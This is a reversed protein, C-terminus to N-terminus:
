NRESKSVAYNSIEVTFEQQRYSNVRKIITDHRDVWYTAAKNVYRYRRTPIQRDGLYLAEEGVYEVPSFVERLVGPFLQAHDFMPVYMTIEKGYRAAMKAVAGGRFVLLPIDILADQPMEAEVYKREAGNMNYGVQLRDGAIQYTARLSKVGGEFKANEYRIDLRVLADDRSLLAEMLISKGEEERADVDVRLFKEGDPHAHIAWSETKRLAVGNIVFHYCGSAAFREHAQVPHLYRM